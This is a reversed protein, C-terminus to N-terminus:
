HTPKLIQLPLDPVRLTLEAVLKICPVHQFSVSTCSIGMMSIRSGKMATMFVGVDVPGIVVAARLAMLIKKTFPTM